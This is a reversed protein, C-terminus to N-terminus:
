VKLEVTAAPVEVPVYVKLPVHAPICGNGRPRAHSVSRIADGERRPGVTHTHQAPTTYGIRAAGCFRGVRVLGGGAADGANGSCGHHHRADIPVRSSANSGTASAAAEVRRCACTPV